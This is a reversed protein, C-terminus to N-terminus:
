TNMGTNHLQTSTFYYIIAAIRCWHESVRKDNDDYTSLQIGVNMFIIGVARLSM